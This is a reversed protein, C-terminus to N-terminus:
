LRDGLLHGQTSKHENTLYAYWGHDREGASMRSSPSRSLLDSSKAKQMQSPRTQRYESAMASQVNQPISAVRTGTHTSPERRLPVEEVQPGLSRTGGQQSSSINTGVGQSMVTLSQEQSRLEITAESPPHRPDDTTHASCCGGM